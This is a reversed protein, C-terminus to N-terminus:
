EKQIIIKGTYISNGSVLRLFYIGPSLFSIDISITFRSPADRYDTTRFVRGSLDSIQIRFSSLQKLIKINLFDSAPNPYLFALDSLMNERIGPCIYVFVTKRSVAGDGCTNNGRVTVQGSVSEPSFDIQVTDGNQTGVIACGPPVTWIYSTAGAIEGVGYEYTHNMCVSDKGTIPGAPDPMSELVIEKTNPQGNGCSNNALVSITGPQEGWEVTVADTGQGGTIIADPYVTWLYAIAGPVEDISYEVTARPCVASPGSIEGPVSPINTTDVSLVSPNSIGCFNGAIVSVTGPTNGWLVQISPTNQGNMITADSPVMWSYSTAGFVPQVSFTELGGICIESPGNVPGPMEPVPLITVQVSDISVHFSTDSVTVIYWTNASPTAVPNATTSNFGPPHSTWSYTYPPTGGSANSLLQTSAGLCVADPEADADLLIYGTNIVQITANRKHVPTVNPGSATFVAQYSGSALGGSSKIRVMKSAPYSTIVNGQPFAFTVTGGGGPVPDMVASLIVTDSYLKIEPISVAFDVSDAGAYLTDVNHDIAMAFDPFYGAVSMYNGNRFDTWGSLSGKRNSVIGNYDGQYRPTGGGPCTSCDIKMKKNSIRQNPAYTLGGDDSYTAYIYASDGTPIDRTDMWNLYIRGTQKDCWVSPHWQYNITTNPDDNVLIADSFTAGGDDSYRLWIDPKNGDGPPDNSAYVNYLRGRYLGYSNDAVIYPYPRTRMGQVSHRTGVQNGVTNAFQQSSMLTFTAGGDFSRYFTYVSNFSNGSNTVCYVAGGQINGNPGVCISMGPLTQTSPTFTTEFSGGHDTSRAFAGETYNTMCVYVYNAYPGSTQDCAVWCKDNGYVGTISPTWTAGNDTSRIVKTGEIQEKPYLNVYYLNGISDYAVVPDGAMDYGFDPIVDEWKNGDETHHGVNYNYAVFHWAPNQLSAAINNEGLDTGLSFNDWNNVTIVYSFLAADAPPPNERLSRPLQDLNPDDPFQARASHNWGSMISLFLLLGSVFGPIQKGTNTNKM